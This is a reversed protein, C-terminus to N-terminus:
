AWRGHITVWAAVVGTGDPYASGSPTALVLPVLSGEDADAVQPLREVVPPDLGAVSADLPRNYALFRDIASDTRAGAVAALVVGGTLGVLM